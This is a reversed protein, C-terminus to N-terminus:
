HRYFHDFGAPAARLRGDLTQVSLGGGKVVRGIVRAGRVRLRKPGTALLAYDEGGTLALTFAELRLIECVCFLEPRLTRRIAREELVIRVASDEAIHGADGSLGDSVDIVARARSKLGLGERVLARPTRWAAVCAAIARRSSADLGTARRGSMLWRLGAAALGIEGVLWVEDGPRAAGRSFPKEVEGLITTTVSLADGRALNGGVIPCRLKRAADAQGAVVGRVTREGLRAPVILSSLAAIPRAGMAAVDSVAAHFSRAGIDALPLWRREFHVGEVSTDITWVLGRSRKRLVAADDGIGISAVRDTGPRFLDALAAVIRREPSRAVRRASDNV